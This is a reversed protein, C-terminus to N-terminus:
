DLNQLNKNLWELGLERDEPKFKHLVLVEVEIKAVEPPMYLSPYLDGLHVVELIADDADEWLQRAAESQFVSKFNKSM